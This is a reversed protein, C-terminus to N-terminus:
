EGPVYFGVLMFAMGVFVSWGLIVWLFWISLAIKLPIYAIVYPLDRGELINDLDSTILNTIRGVLNGDQSSSPDEKKSAATATLSPAPTNTSEPSEDSSSSPEVPLTAASSQPTSPTSGASKKKKETPSNDVDEKVRIRLAHEFVLQTIIGETRVM